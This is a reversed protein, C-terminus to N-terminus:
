CVPMEAVGADQNVLRLAEIRKLTHLFHISLQDVIDVGQNLRIVFQEEQTVIAPLGALCTVIPLPQIYALEVDALPIVVGATKAIM